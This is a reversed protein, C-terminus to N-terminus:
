CGGVDMYIVKRFTTSTRSQSQFDSKDAVNKQATTSPHSTSAVETQATRPLSELTRKTPTESNKKEPVKKPTTDFTKKTEFAKKTPNDNSKKSRLNYQRHVEMIANEFAQQESEEEDVETQSLLFLENNKKLLFFPITTM